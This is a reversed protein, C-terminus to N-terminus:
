AAILLWILFIHIDEFVNTLCSYIIKIFAHKHARIHPMIFMDIDAINVLYYIFKYSIHVFLVKKLTM